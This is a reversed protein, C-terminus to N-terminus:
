RFLVRHEISRTKEYSDGNTISLLTTESGDKVRIIILRQYQHADTHNQRDLEILVCM